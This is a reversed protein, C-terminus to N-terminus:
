SDHVSVDFLTSISGKPKHEADRELDNQMTMPNRM